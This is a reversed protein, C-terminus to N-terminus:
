EFIKWTSDDADLMYVDGTSMCIADGGVIPRIYKLEDTGNSTNTPLKGVDTPTSITFSAYNTKENFDSCIAAM